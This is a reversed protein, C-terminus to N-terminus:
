RPRPVAHQQGRQRPHGRMRLPEAARDLPRDAERREQDRRAPDEDRDGPRRRHMQEPLPTPVLRNGDHLRDRERGRHMPERHDAAGADLRRASPSPASRELRDVPKRQDSRDERRHPEAARQRLDRDRHSHLAHQGARDTSGAALMAPPQPARAAIRQYPGNTNEANAANAIASVIPAVIPSDASDSCPASTRRPTKATAQSGTIATYPRRSSASSRASRRPPQRVGTM